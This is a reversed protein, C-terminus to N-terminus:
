HSAAWAVGILGCVILWSSAARVAMWVRHPGAPPDAADDAGFELPATPMNSFGLEPGPQFQFAAMAATLEAPVPKVSISPQPSLARPNGAAM